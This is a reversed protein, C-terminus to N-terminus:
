MCIVTKEMLTNGLDVSDLPSHVFRSFAFSGCGCTSDAFDCTDFQCHTLVAKRFKAKIFKCRVFSVQEGKVSTLDARTFNCGEFRGRLVADALSAGSFDSDRVEYGLNTTLQGKRFSCQSLRCDFQGFGKTLSCSLDTASITINKVVESITLGRLDRRGDALGPFPSEGSGLLARVGVILLDRDWRNRLEEIESGTM